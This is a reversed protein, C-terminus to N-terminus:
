GMKHESRAAELVQSFTPCKKLLQFAQRAIHRGAETDKPFHVGAIERNEGIRDALAILAKEAKPVIAALSLAM